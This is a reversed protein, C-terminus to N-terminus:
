ACLRGEEESRVTKGRVYWQDIGVGGHQQAKDGLRQHKLGPKDSDALYWPAQSIYQPIHPNIMRGDEDVEAPAAGAKRLEELEKQRKYDERSLRQSSSAM